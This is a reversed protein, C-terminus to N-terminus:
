KPTNHQSRYHWFTPSCWLKLLSAAHWRFHRLRQWTSRHAPHVVTLPMAQMRYGQLQLRLCIDVDECYMFYRENFGGLQRYVPARFLMCAGNVWDAQAVNAAQGPQHVRQRARAWARQLVGWPTPVTRAYDQSAGQATVQRPCLLGTTPTNLLAQLTAAQHQTGTSLAPATAPPWLIDPNVVWFWDCPRSKFAQNHNAGFGQPIPNHIVHVPFPWHTAHLSAQLTPEPLNLTVVAQVAWHQWWGSQSFSHLMSLVQQGHGHSVVSLTLSPRNPPPSIM